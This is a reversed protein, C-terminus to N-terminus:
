GGKNGTTASGKGDMAQEHENIKDTIAIGRKIGNGFADEWFLEILREPVNYRWLRKKWRDLNNVQIPKLPLDFRPKENALREPM